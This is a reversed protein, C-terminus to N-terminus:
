DFERSDFLFGHIKLDSVGLRRISLLHERQHWAKCSEFNRFGSIRLVQPAVVGFQHLAPEIAVGFVAQHLNGDIAFFYESQRQDTQSRLQKTM